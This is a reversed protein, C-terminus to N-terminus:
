FRDVAAQILSLTKGQTTGFILHCCGSNLGSTINLDRSRWHTEQLFVVFSFVLPFFFPLSSLFPLLNCVTASLQIRAPSSPSVGRHQLLLIFIAAITFPSSCKEHKRQPSPPHKCALFDRSCHWFLIGPHKKYFSSCTSTCHISHIESLLEFGADAQTVKM